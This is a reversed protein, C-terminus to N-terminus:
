NLSKDIYDFDDDQKGYMIEYPTLGSSLKESTNVRNKIRSISIVELQNAGKRRRTPNIESIDQELENVNDIEINNNGKNEEQNSEEYNVEQTESNMTVQRYEEELNVIVNSKLNGKNAKKIIRDM